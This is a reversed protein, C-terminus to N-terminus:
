SRRGAAMDREKKSYARTIDSAASKTAVGENYADRAMQQVAQPSAGSDLMDAAMQRLTIDGSDSSPTAGGGGGSYARGSGGSSSRGGSSGGSGGSAAAMQQLAYARDADEAQGLASLYTLARNQENLGLDSLTNAVSMYQNNQAMQNAFDEQRLREYMDQTDKIQQYQQLYDQYRFNRDDKYANERGTLYDLGGQWYGYEQQGRNSLMNMNNRLNNGEDQYRSYAIQELQPIINALDQMYRNYSQQAVSGAYSSALGGTRKSMQALSNKMADQGLRTYQDKYIQYNADKEPDYSYKERDRLTQWQKDWEPQLRDQYTGYDDLQRSFNDLKSQNDYSFPGYNKVAARWKVNEQPLWDYRGKKDYTATNAMKNVTSDLQSQYPNTGSSELTEYYKNSYLAM